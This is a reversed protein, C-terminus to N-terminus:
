KVEQDADPLYHLEVRPATLVESATAVVARPSLQLYRDLDAKLWDPEGRFYLYSSMMGARGAITQIREHFDVEYNTVAVTIDDPTPPTDGLFAAIQADVAAVIEDTTHGDAATAMVLFESSLMGSSQFCAIDRAIQQEKVLAKYLRSDKGNCLVTSAIDMQADGDAYFAPSHWTMWLKRDPVDDYKRIVKTADLKVEAVDRHVPDPGRPIWGFNDEILDKATAPEFDGTVVLSANNPLYWTKFFAKVDDVSAAQLDEHSGIVPHHYPHGEPFMAEGLLLWADGYPPNETRQRRENRVVERQNDLKSQELVPLLNGMRDSEMFLALPLYKSPVTEYYNTRDQSTTGNLDGGVQQIPTFYEGPANASGQFMLHEFLHAFGTLGKTEDKSGVHYWVQVHVIPASHDPALVVELGNDLTYREHEISLDAALAPASAALLMAIPLKLTVELCSTSPYGTPLLPDGCPSTM